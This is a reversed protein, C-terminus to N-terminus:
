LWGSVPTPVGYRVESPLVVQAVSRGGSCRVQECHESPLVVQGPAQAASRGQECHESPLEVQGPM